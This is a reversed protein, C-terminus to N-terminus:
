QKVIIKQNPSNNESRVSVIYMGDPLHTLRISHQNNTLEGSALLRGQLDLLQYVVAKGSLQQELRLNLMDTAPNPYVQFDVTNMEPVSTIIYDSVKIISGVSVKVAEATYDMNCNEVLDQETHYYPNFDKEMFYLCPVGAEYFYKCDAGAQGSLSLVQPYMTTFDESIEKAIWTLWQSGVYRSITLKWDDSATHAIMDNNIMLEMSMGRALATDVYAQAGSTGFYMLEEASFAVFEIDYVPEIQHLSLVRVTEFLASVGSANDDAGPAFVMPDGDPVVCDYHAGMVICQNGDTMGEITGIVNYQWTTTDFHLNSYNIKTYCLFSDIRAQDAGLQMFKEKISEAVAKRNPAILFRTGQDQLFQIYSEVSDASVENLCANIVSDTPSATQLLQASSIFSFFSLLLATIFIVKIYLKKM